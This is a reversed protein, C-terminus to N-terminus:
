ELVSDPPVMVKVTCIDFTKLKENEGETSNQTCFEFVDASPLLPCYM